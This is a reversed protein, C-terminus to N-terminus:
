DNCLEKFDKFNEAACVDLIANLIEAHSWGDKDAQIAFQSVMRALTPTPKCRSALATYSVNIKGSPNKM